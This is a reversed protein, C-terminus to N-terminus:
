VKKSKRWTELINLLSATCQKCKSTAAEFSADAALDSPPNKIADDNQIPLRYAVFLSSSLQDSFDQKKSLVNSRLGILGVDDCDQISM